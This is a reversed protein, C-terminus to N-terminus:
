WVAAWHRKGARKIVKGGAALWDARRAPSLRAGAVTQEYSLLWMSRGCCRPAPPAGPIYAAPARRVRGCLRCVYNRNTPCRTM